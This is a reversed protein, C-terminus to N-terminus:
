NNKSTYISKMSKQKNLYITFVIYFTTTEMKQLQKIEETAKIRFERYGARLVWLSIYLMKKENIRNHTTQSFLNYNLMHGMYIKIQVKVDLNMILSNM